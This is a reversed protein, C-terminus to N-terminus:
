FCNEPFLGAVIYWATESQRTKNYYITRIFSSFATFSHTIWLVWCCFQIQSGSIGSMSNHVKQVSLSFSLQKRGISGFQSLIWCRIDLNTLSQHYVPKSMSTREMVATCVTYLWYISSWNLVSDVFKQYHIKNVLHGIASVITMVADLATAWFQGM